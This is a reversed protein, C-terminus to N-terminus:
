SDARPTAPLQRNMRDLISRALEQWMPEQLGQREREAALRAAPNVQLDRMVMVQTDLLRQETAVEDFQIAQSMRLLEAVAEGDQNRATTSARFQYAGLHLHYPADTIATVREVGASELQQQLAAMLGSPADGTIYLRDLNLQGGGLGRLRFGCGTLGATSGVLLGALFRRRSLNM